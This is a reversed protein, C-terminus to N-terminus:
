KIVRELIVPGFFGGAEAQSEYIAMKKQYPGVDIADQHDFYDTSCCENAATNTVVIKLEDGNKLNEISVRYPPMVAEAVKNGNIYIKACHKVEGLDLLYEGESIGNLRHLYTVEGSFNKEWEYLGSKMKDTSTEEFLINVPGGAEIDLKYQRSIYSSFDNLVCIKETEKIKEAQIKTDTMWLIIGEGRHLTITKEICDGKRVFDTECFIGTSLDLTFMNKDSDIEITESVTENNFNCIFYAEDGDKFLMKKSIIKKNKRKICPKIENGVEKLKELIEAPEFEADPVFVNSYAIHETKLVGNEVVAQRVIEEDVIDFDVGCEELMHGLKEYNEIARRGKEGGGCITKYPCYLATTVDAKNEQLLYSLRATYENIQSLCDMSPNEKNFGPRFQLGLMSKRDYPILMFNFLSIGRVAQYNVIFRILEHTMDAGYVSLCESFTNSHGQQHAASSALRPFFENGEYCCKDNIPYKIQGWIADIGPVDFTRLLDLYNGYQWAGLDTQNDVNLHGISLMNYGNLWERMKLFYNKGVIKGCLRIYDSKARYQTDTQPEKDRAIYPMYDEINYGYTEYFIKELGPTWDGMGSEDDFMYIIDSGMHNGFKKKLKEHTLEIFCETTKIDANDPRLSATICCANNFYIYQKIEVDEAFVYGAYIREDGVFASIMNEHPIFVTGAKLNETIIDFSKIGLEPMKKRVAGAASGSPYGGENYLWTYMGKEQALEFTYYLLDLYEDSLYEPYLDTKFSDARFGKPLALVYFARIGCEYMEDIQRKVEQKTIITSWTWCYAPHYKVPIEKLNM